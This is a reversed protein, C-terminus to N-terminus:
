GENLRGQFYRSIQLFQLFQRLFTCVKVNFINSMVSLYLLLLFARLLFNASNRRFIPRHIQFVDNSTDSHSKLKQSRTKVRKKAHNESGVEDILECHYIRKCHHEDGLIDSSRSVFRLTVKKPNM